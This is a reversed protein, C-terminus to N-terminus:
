VREHCWKLATVEGKKFPSQPPNKKDNLSHKIGVLGGKEFLPVLAASKHLYRDMM